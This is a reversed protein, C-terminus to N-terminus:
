PGDFNDKFDAQGEAVDAKVKSGPNSSVSYQGRGEPNQQIM